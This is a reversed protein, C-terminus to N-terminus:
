SRVAVVSGSPTPTVNIQMPVREALSPIHTVIGVLRGSSGLDEIATAVIDLTEPDLTGFGEDLFMSELPPTSTSAIDTISDALALALALSTLFTEGGSLTRASRLEDANRHDRIQFEKGDTTLSYAGASLEQLRTTAREALDHMVDTMVWREFMGAVLHKGIESALVSENSKAEIQDRTDQERAIRDETNALLVRADSHVGRLVAEATEPDAAADKPLYPASIKVLVKEAAARTKASVTVSKTLERRQTALDKAQAKGWKALEDWDDHISVESPKPPSLAAVSDRADTFERRLTTEGSSSDDLADQADNRVQEAAILTEHAAEVKTEAATIRKQLALAQKATPQGDLLARLSDGSAKAGDVRAAADAETATASQLEQVVAQAAAQANAKAAEARKLVSAQATKSGHKPLVEVLQTCVPCEDGVHLTDAIGQAGSVVRAHELDTEADVLATRAAEAKESLAQLAEASAAHTEALVVLQDDLDALEGHREILDVVDSSEGLEARAAIAVEHKNEATDLKKQAATLAATAKAIRSAFDKTQTPVELQDLQHLQVDIEEVQAEAEDHQAVAALRNKEATEVTALQSEIKSLQSRLKKPDGVASGSDDELTQELAEVQGDLDRARARAAKGVEAFKDLGLIQRLLEQRTSPKVKLFQAFEGQPLIVTKTFQSFSLGLIREVTTTVESATSALVEDGSELRAEKTSAGTESRRVIRVATYTTAGVSFDLRVRAENGVANIVPAVLKENDYRAISGYLAFAIGDIVSSKGAGTPGTLAILDNQQFDVTTHERFPGFGQLELTLPRM